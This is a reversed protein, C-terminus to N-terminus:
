MVDRIIKIEEEFGLSGNVHFLRDVDSTSRNNIGHTFKNKGVTELRQAEEFVETRLERLLTCWWWFDYRALSQNLSQLCAILM